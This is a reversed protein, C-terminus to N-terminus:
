RLSRQSCNPKADSEGVRSNIWVDARQVIIQAHFPSDNNQRSTRDGTSPVEHVKGPADHMAEAVLSRARHAHNQCQARGANLLKKLFRQFRCQIPSRTRRRINLATASRNTAALGFYPEQRRARLCAQQASDSQRRTRATSLSARVLQQSCDGNAQHDPPIRDKKTDAIIESLWEREITTTIRDYAVRM